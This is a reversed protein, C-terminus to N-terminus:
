RTVVDNYISMLTEAIVQPRFNKLHMKGATVMNSKLEANSLLTRIHHALAEADNPDVYLSGPGGAESLCSGTAAIVPVSSQLAEVIPIGFGEFFSPYVFMESGQYIAPLDQFSVNHLFSIWQEVRLERAIDIIKSKYKTARGVIVVPIRSEDSLLALARVLLLVNKRSEITGVNLIYREPIRYKSKAASIEEQSYTKSFIPHCGQYVVEIKAPDVKMYEVIDQKTQYSTALIRDARSCATNVKAKYVRADIPNYLEPYRIFILDHITVVCALNGPISLPLEHSLGHFLDLEKFAAEKSVGFTRWLSTAKLARYLSPPTVISVNSKHVIADVEPHAKTKPTFLFYQHDPKHESLAQVVFRSYNGLGTFNNFLRKADFGIKV